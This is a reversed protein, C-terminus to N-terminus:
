KYEKTHVVKEFNLKEFNDVIMMMLQKYVHVSMKENKYMVCWFLMM